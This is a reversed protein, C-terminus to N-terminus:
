TLLKLPTFILGNCGKNINKSCHYTNEAFQIEHAQYVMIIKIIEQFDSSKQLDEAGAYQRCFQVSRNKTL